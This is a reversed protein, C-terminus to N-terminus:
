HLCGMYIIARKVYADKVVKKVKKLRTDLKEGTAVVVIYYGNSFEDYQNTHEVSVYVDDERGRAIYCPFGEKGWHEECVEKPETLFNSEHFILGRLDLKIELKKSINKAYKKAEKYNKTAKVILFEKKEKPIPYAEDDIASDAFIAGSLFLMILLIKKM